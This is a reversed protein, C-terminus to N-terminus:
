QAEKAKIIYPYIGFMPYEMGRTKIFYTKGTELAGFDRSAFIGDPQIKFVGKDTGVYYTYSTSFQDTTGTFNQQTTISRVVVKLSQEYSYQVFVSAVCVVIIAIVGFIKLNNM